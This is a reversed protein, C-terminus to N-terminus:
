QRCRAPSRLHRGSPHLAVPLGARGANWRVSAQCLGGLREQAAAGSVGQYAVTGESLLAGSRCRRPISLLAPDAADQGIQVPAPWIEKAREWLESARDEIQKTSWVPCTAFWGNLSYHSSAYIKKKEQFGLNSLEPNYAAITLNGITDGLLDHIKKPDGDAALMNRWEETLTQPMVHEITAADLVAPEKHGYSKELAGLILKCRQPVSYVKYHLWAQKFEKDRPWKRGASASSLNDRLWALTNTAVFGKAAQLFIRKLQNTPVACVMRRVVFSEINQLCQNFEEKSVENRDYIEYLKLTLPHSTTVDWKLLQRLTAQIDPDSEETPKVLRLYYGSVRHMDALTPKVEEYSDKVRKKLQSYVDDKLVEEGNRMLYHRMFETLNDGLRREMPLWLNTYIDEQSAVPFKM